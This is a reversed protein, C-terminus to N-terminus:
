ALDELRGAAKLAAMINEPTTGAQIFHAPALIYGGDRALVRKLHEVEAKVDEPSGTVLTKQVSIGGHFCIRDGFGGKLAEPTMGETYFQLSELIDVGADILQDIALIVSGCTHYMVKAGYRHAVDNVEKHYPMIFEQIAAPSMLLGGQGGLDDASFMIDIKGNAAKLAREMFELFFDTARRMMAHVMEPEAITDLLINEFGRLWSACEFPNANGFRIAKPGDANVRDIEAELGSFDFWDASPFEFAEIDAVDEAEALPNYCQEDYGGEGFSIFKTQFGWLSTFVEGEWCNRYAPGIYRPAVQAIDDARQLYERTEDISGLKLYDRLGALAPENIGFGWSFPVRDTEQHNLAALVRERSTMRKM